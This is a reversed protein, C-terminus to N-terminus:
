NGSNRLMQHIAAQAKSRLLLSLIELDNLIDVPDRDNATRLANKLWVSMGPHALVWEIQGEAEQLKDHSPESMVM